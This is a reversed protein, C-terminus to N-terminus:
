RQVRRKVEELPTHPVNLFVDKFYRTDYQLEQKYIKFTRETIDGYTARYQSDRNPLLGQAASEYKDYCVTHVLLYEGRDTTGMARIYSDAQERLKLWLRGLNQVNVHINNNYLHRSLAYFIPMSPYLKNLAQDYQSSLYIGGDSIYIDKGEEFQPDLKVIRNEICNEFTNNGLSVDTLAIVETDANYQINSYHKDGRLAIVHAFILDKGTGKKGFVIVNCRSFEHVLWYDDPTLGHRKRRLLLRIVIVAIGILAATVAMCALFLVIWDSM